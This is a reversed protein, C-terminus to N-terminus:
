FIAIEFHVHRHYTGAMQFKVEPTGTYLGIKALNALSHIHIHAGVKFCTYLVTNWLRRFSWFEGAILDLHHDTAM